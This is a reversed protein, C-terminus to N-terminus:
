QEKISQDAGLRNPQEPLDSLLKKIAPIVPLQEPILSIGTTWISNLMRLAVRSSLTWGKETKVWIDTVSYSGPNIRPADTYKDQVGVSILLTAKATKSDLITIEISDSIKSTLDPWIHVRNSERRNGEPCVEAMYQERTLKQTRPIIITEGDSQSSERYYFKPDLLATLAKSDDANIAHQLRMEADAVATQMEKEAANSQDAIVFPTHTALLISLVCLQVAIRM